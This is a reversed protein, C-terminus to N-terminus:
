GCGPAGPPFVHIGRVAADHEFRSALLSLTVPNSTHARLSVSMDQVTIVGALGPQASFRDLYEAYAEARGVIALEDIGDTALLENRLRTLDRDEEVFLVVNWDPFANCAPTVATTVEDVDSLSRLQGTIEGLFSPHTLELRISPPLTTGDVGEVLEPRDAYLHVFEELAAQSTVLEARGIGEWAAVAEILTEGPADPALWAIVDPGAEPLTSTTSEPPRTTTTPSLTTSPLEPLLAAEPRSASTCATALLAVALSTLARRNWPKMLDIDAFRSGTQFWAARIGPAPPIM